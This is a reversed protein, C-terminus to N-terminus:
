EANPMHNLPGFHEAPLIRLRKAQPDDYRWGLLRWADPSAALIRNNAYDIAATSGNPGNILTMRVDGTQVDWLKLTGDGSASIIHHGDPSFACALVWDAHGELTRLCIGSQADWLKLTHDM